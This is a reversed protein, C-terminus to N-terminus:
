SLIFIKRVKKKENKLYLNKKANSRFIKKGNQDEFGCDNSKSVQYRLVKNFDVNLIKLLEYMTNDNKRKALTFYEMYNKHFM